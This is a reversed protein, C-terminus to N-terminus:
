LLLGESSGEGDSGDGDGQDSGGGANGGGASGGGAGDGEREEGKGERPPAAPVWSGRDDWALRDNSWSLAVHSVDGPASAM